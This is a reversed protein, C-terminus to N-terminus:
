QTLDLYMLSNRGWERERGGKGEERGGRGAELGRKMTQTSTKQNSIVELGGPAKL